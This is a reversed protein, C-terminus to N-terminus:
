LKFLQDIAENYVADTILVGATNNDHLDVAHQHSM